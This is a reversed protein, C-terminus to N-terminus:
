VLYKLQSQMSIIKGLSKSIMFLVSLTDAQVEIKGETVEKIMEEDLIVYPIIKLFNQNFTMFANVRPQIDKAKLAKLEKSNFKLNGADISADNDEMLNINNDALYQEISELLDGDLKEDFKKISNM